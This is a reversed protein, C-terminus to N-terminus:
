RQRVDVINGVEPVEDLYEGRVYEGPEAPQLPVAGHIHASCVLITSGRFGFGQLLANSGAFQAVPIISDM